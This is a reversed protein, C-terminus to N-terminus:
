YGFRILDKISTIQINDIFLSFVNIHAFIMFALFMFVIGYIGGVIHALHNINGSQNKDLYISIVIFIFGFLFAPVYIPIFLLGMYSMPYILISAFVVASVAGSAGLGRYLYNDKEKLYTPFISVVLGLLYMLVFLILGFQNGFVSRFVKEIERGFIYLSFMNFILHTWDAHLFGYTFLRYWQGSKVAPPSFILKEVWTKNSFGLFSIICTVAIIITTIM